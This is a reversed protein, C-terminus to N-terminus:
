GLKPVHHGLGVSKEVKLGIALLGAEDYLRGTITGCIPQQHEANDNLMVPVVATPHGTLNTIGLDGGGVYMDIGRFVEAMQRMLMTRVRAAHLFDIASVFHSKRFIAPWANLGELNNEVTLQHFVTAAEVDLMMALSWEDIESPLEIPVIQAKHERLVELLVQDATASNRNQVHGIRVQTLDAAVPWNFWRDVTTPDAPDSGHIAEFVLGCDDITRAIPGLKDMTWSLTMCGARSIRGFTPRLATVGCRRAPSVISGLTESGIAFPVLGAAVASASGASSGSSGQEPNWPNRTMGGFWQDGMALAGLSLKAVLVAGRESLRKAVTATEALTRDRFQSAGWTTPYGEVAILDKAGWPIGHLLGRDEGAQLQRDAEAAQRLALEETINVVNLLKPDAARLGEISARTLDTSTWQRDRLGKALQRITMFAFPHPLNTTNVETSNAPTQTPAVSSDTASPISEASPILYPPCLRSRHPSEPDVLEPDFRVAPIADYGVDINRLTGLQRTVGAMAAATATRADDDLTLGAVWEASAIADATIGGAKAVEDALARRFVRSGVGLATLVGLVHRRKLPFDDQDAFM